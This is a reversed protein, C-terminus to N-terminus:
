MEADRPRAAEGDTAMKGRNRANRRPQPPQVLAALKIIFEVPEFEVHTTGNNWPKKFPCCVRGQPSLSLRKEFIAPRALHRCLRELKQGEHGKGEASRCRLWRV